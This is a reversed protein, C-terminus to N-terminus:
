AAPVGTATAAPETIYLADAAGANARGPYANGPPLAKGKAISFKPHTTAFEECLALTNDTSNDDMVIVEYNSYDQQHISKLLTLINGAENRTPILVSVKDHYPKM